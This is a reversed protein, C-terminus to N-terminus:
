PVSPPTVNDAEVEIRSRVEETSLGGESRLKRRSRELLDLCDPNSGISLSEWDLGEASSLVAVPKGAATLVMPEEGVEGAYDALPRKAESIELTKM